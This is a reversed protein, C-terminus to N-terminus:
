HAQLSMMSNLFFDLNQVTPRYISLILLKRQKSNVEVPVAQIAPPIKCSHLHKSPIDENFFLAVDSTYIKRMEKQLLQCEPFSSNLKIEAQLHM